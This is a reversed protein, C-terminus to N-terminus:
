GVRPRSRRVLIALSRALRSGGHISRLVVSGARPSAAVLASCLRVVGRRVPSEQAAPVGEITGGRYLGAVRGVIASADRIPVDPMTRADGRTLTWSGDAARAVVRHVVLRGGILFAIVDGPAGVEGCRLLVECGAPLAPEMSSGGFRARLERGTKRWLSAVAALGEGETLDIEIGNREGVVAVVDRETM